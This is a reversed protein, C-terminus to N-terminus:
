QHLSKSKNQAASRRCNISGLRMSAAAKSNKAPGAQKKRCEPCIGKFMIDYDLFQIGHTDRIRGILDPEVDMDVDSLQGCKVCQVHYHEHLTHDFRDPGNPVVIKQIEGEEALINLNRYVTGKGIAPHNKIVFAYVSDATPHNHLCKVADLVM